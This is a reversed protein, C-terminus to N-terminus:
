SQFKPKVSTSQQPRGRKLAEVDWSLAWAQPEPFAEFLSAEQQKPQNTPQQM